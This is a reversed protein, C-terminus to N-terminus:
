YVLPGFPLCSSLFVLLCFRVLPERCFLSSLCSARHGGSLLVGHSSEDPYARQCTGCCREADLQGTAAGAAGGIGGGDRHLAVHRDRVHHAGVGQAHVGGVARGACGSAVQEDALFGRRARGLVVDGGGERLALAICRVGLDRVVALLDDERHLARRRVGRGDRAPRGARAAPVDPFVVHARAPQGAAAEAPEGARGAVVVDVRGVQGGALAEHERGIALRLRVGALRQAVVVVREVFVLALAHEVQVRHIGLAVGDRLDREVLAMVAVRDHPGVAVDHERAPVVDAPAVVELDEAGLRVTGVEEHQVARVALAVAEQMRAVHVRAALVRAKECGVQHRQRARM